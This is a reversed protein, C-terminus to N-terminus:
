LRFAIIKDHIFTSFITRTRARRPVPVYRNPAIPKKKIAAPSAAEVPFFTAGYFDLGNHLLVSCEELSALTVRVVPPAPHQQAVAATVPQQQQLDAAAQQSM